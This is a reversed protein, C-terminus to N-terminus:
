LVTLKEQDVNFLKTLSYSSLKNKENDLSKIISNIDHKMGNLTKSWSSHIGNVAQQMSKNIQGHNMDIGSISIKQNVIKAIQETISDISGLQAKIQINKVKGQITDINSNINGISADEDLLAQLLISFDNNPM